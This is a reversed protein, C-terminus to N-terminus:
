GNAFPAYPFIRLGMVEIAGWGPPIALSHHFIVALALIAFGRLGNIVAIRDYGADPNSEKM